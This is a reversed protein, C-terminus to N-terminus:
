HPIPHPTSYGMSSQPSDTDLPIEYIKHSTVKYHSCTKLLCVSSSLGSAILTLNDELLWFDNNKQKILFYSGICTAMEELCNRAVREITEYLISNKELSLYFPRPSTVEPIM